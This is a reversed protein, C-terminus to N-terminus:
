FRFYDNELKTQIVKARALGSRFPHARLYLGKHLELVCLITHFENHYALGNVASETQPTGWRVIIADGKEIADESAWPCNTPAPM